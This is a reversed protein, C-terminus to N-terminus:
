KKLCRIMERATNQWSFRKATEIGALNVTGKKDLIYKMMKMYLDMEEHAGIKAWNGQGFFWKNDFAPEVDTISVLGANEKTCFETHASYDTAVVHKGAAMMELLELNWGEGRSPFVGCDVQSMINYVEAQTDARPILKVKPHNYLQHWKADEEPSNFPNTCMMWLEADEGHELVKKFANILIDHGKRIEWKGCNFFITKDDQRVLAPPFLEADVGLPVVHVKADADLYTHGNPSMYLQDLCVQKAWQSCVMLEDCSNLHHKELENFTDLEFIPFGIFKGSGIREAMQNQHWIKVCPAQPDFTQALRMGRRVAYADEENTVQPQGIPFFSVEVEEEYLAKLINLGAVGYGLQNIPAQLNLKM